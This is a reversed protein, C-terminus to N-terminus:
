YRSQVVCIRTNLLRAIEVGAAEHDSVTPDTLQFAAMAFGQAPFYVLHHLPLNTDCCNLTAATLDFGRDSDIWCRDMLEQWQEIAVSENCKPCRIDGHNEGADIFFPRRYSLKSQITASGAYANALFNEVTRADDDTVIHMPDSPMFSIITTSM